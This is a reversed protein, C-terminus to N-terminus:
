NSLQLKGTDVGISDLYDLTTQKTNHIGQTTSSRDTLVKINIVNGVFDTDGYELADPSSPLKDILRNGNNANDEDNLVWAYSSNKDGPVKGIIFVKGSASFLRKPQINNSYFIQYLNRSAPDVTFVGNDQLFTLQDGAAIGDINQSLEVTNYQTDKKEFFFLKKHNKGYILGDNTVAINDLTLLRGVNLIETSSDTFNLTVINPKISDFDIDADGLNPSLGRHCTVFDGNVDCLTQQTNPDYDKPPTIKTYEVDTKSKPVGLYIIGDATVFAFRNNAQDHKDTFIGAETIKNIDVGEPNKLYNIEGTDSVSIVNSPPIVDSNRLYGVGLLGGMYAAPTYNPYFMDAIKEITWEGKEPTNYYVLSNSNFCSYQSMRNLKDSYVGCPNDLSSKYAIKDANKDVKLEIDKAAYGYWPITIQSQTRINKGAQAIISKINRPVIHLGPKGLEKTGYNSSTYVTFETTTPPNTISITILSYHLFFNISGYLLIALLGLRILLKKHSKILEIIEAVM